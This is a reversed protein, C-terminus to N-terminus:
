KFKAWYDNPTGDSSVSRVGRKYLGDLKRSTEYNILHRLVLHLTEHNIIRCIYRETAYPGLYITETKHCIYSYINDEFNFCDHCNGTDIKSM